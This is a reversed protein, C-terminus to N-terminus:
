LSLNVTDLNQSDAAGVESPLLYCVIYVVQGGLNM